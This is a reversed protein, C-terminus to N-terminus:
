RELYLAKEEQEERQLGNEDEGVIYEVTVNYAYLKKKGLKIYKCATGYLKTAKGETNIYDWIREEIDTM